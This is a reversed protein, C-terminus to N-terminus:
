GWGFASVLHSSATSSNLELRCFEGQVLLTTHVDGILRSPRPSVVGEVLQAELGLRGRCGGGGSDFTHLRCSFCLTIEGFFGKGLFFYDTIQARESITEAALLDYYSKCKKTSPPHATPPVYSRQNHVCSAIRETNKFTPSIGIPRSSSPNLIVM